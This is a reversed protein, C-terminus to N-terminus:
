LSDLVLDNVACVKINYSYIGTIYADAHLVVSYHREPIQVRFVNTYEEKM